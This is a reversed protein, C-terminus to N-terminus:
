RVLQALVSGYGTFVNEKPLAGRKKLLGHADPLRFFPISPYLHHEIHYNVNHPAFFFTQWPNLVTRANRAQDPGPQYGAHEALGRVRLLAQLVTMFPVAWLTLYLLPHGSAALAGLLVLNSGVIGGRVWAPSLTGGSKPETGAAVRRRQRKAQYMFFKLFKYYSLGSVDQLLKRVLTGKEVPYGGILIIDPDGPTLPDQHHKLHGRKYTELPLLVPGACLLQATRDNWARSEFLRGHAADHMLLALALQHRSMLVLWVPYTWWPTRAALAFTAAILAWDLLVATWAAAASPRSLERLEEPSLKM